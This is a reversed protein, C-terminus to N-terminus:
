TDVGDFNKNPLWGMGVGPNRLLAEEKYEDQVEEYEQEVFDEELANLKWSLYIHKTSRNDIPKIEHYRKSWLTDCKLVVATSKM